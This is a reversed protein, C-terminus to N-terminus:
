RGGNLPRTKWISAEMVEEMWFAHDSPIERYLVYTAVARDIKLEGHFSSCTTPRSGRSSKLTSYAPIYSVWDVHHRHGFSPKQALSAITIHCPHSGTCATLPPMHLVSTVIQSPTNTLVSHTSQCLYGASSVMELWCGTGLSVSFAREQFLASTWKGSGKRGEGVM